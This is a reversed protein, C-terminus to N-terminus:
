AALGALRLRRRRGVQMGGVPSMPVGMGGGPGGYPVYAMQMGAAAYAQMMTEQQGPRMPMYGYPQMAVMGYPMGGGGGGQYVMGARLRARPCWPLALHPVARPCCVPAGPLCMLSTGVRIPGAVRCSAHCRLQGPMHAMMAGAPMMGQGYGYGM